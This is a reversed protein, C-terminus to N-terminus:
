ELSNSLSPLPDGTGINEFSTKKFQNFIKHLGGGKGEWCLIITFQRKYSAGTSFDLLLQKSFLTM